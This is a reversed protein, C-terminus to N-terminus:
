PFSGTKQEPALLEEIWGPQEAAELPITVMIRTSRKEPTKGLLLVTRRALLNEGTAFDLAGGAVAFDTQGDLVRLIGMVSEVSSLAHAEAAQRSIELVM